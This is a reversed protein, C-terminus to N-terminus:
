LQRTATYIGTPLLSSPIHKILGDSRGFRERMSVLMRGIASTQRSFLAIPIDSIERILQAISMSFIDVLGHRGGFLQGHCDYAKKYAWVRCVQIGGNKKRELRM